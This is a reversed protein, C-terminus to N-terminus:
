RLFEAAAAIVAILATPPLAYTWREVRRLRAEVDVDRERDTKIQELFLDLKTELRVLREVLTDPPTTM